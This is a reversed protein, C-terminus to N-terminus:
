PTKIKYLRVFILHHFLVYRVINGKFM